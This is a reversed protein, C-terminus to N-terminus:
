EDSVSLNHVDCRWQEVVRGVRVKVAVEELGTDLAVDRQEAGCGDVRRGDFGDGDGAADVGHRRARGLLEGRGDEGVLGPAVDRLVVRALRLVRVDAVAAAFLFGLERHPLEDLGLLRM